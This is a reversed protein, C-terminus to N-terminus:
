SQQTLQRQKFKCMRVHELKAPLGEAWLDHPPEADGEQVIHETYLEELHQIAEKKVRRIVLSLGTM